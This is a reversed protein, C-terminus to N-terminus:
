AIRANIFHSQKTIEHKKASGGQHGTRGPGRTAPVKPQPLGRYTPRTAERAGRNGVLINEISPVGGAEGGSGFGPWRLRRWSQVPPCRQAAVRRCGERDRWQPILPRQQGDSRRGTRPPRIGIGGARGRRLAYGERRMFFLPKIQNSKGQNPRIQTRLAPRHGAPIHGTCSRLFKGFLRGCWPPRGDPGYITWRMDYITQNPKFFISRDSETPNLRIFGTPTRSGSRRCGAPLRQVRFVSDKFSAHRMPAGVEGPAGYDSSPPPGALQVGPMVRGTARGARGANARGCTLRRENLENGNV